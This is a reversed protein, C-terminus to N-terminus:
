ENESGQKSKGSVTLGASKSSGAKLRIALACEDEIAIDLTENTDADRPESRSMRVFLASSKFMM